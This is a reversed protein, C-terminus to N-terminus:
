GQEKKGEHNLRGQREDKGKHTLTVGISRRARQGQHEKKSDQILHELCEEQKHNLHRQCEEGQDHDRHGPGTEEESEHDLHGPRAEEEKNRKHDLAVKEELKHNLHGPSAEERRTITTSTAGTSRIITIM